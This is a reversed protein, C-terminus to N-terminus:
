VQNKSAIGTLVTFHKVQIDLFVLQLSKSFKKKGYSRESLYASESSCFGSSDSIRYDVSKNNSKYSFVPPTPLDPFHFQSEQPPPPAFGNEYPNAKNPRFNFLVPSTSESRRRTGDIRGVYKEVEEDSTTEELIRNDHLSPLLSCTALDQPLDRAYTNADSRELEKSIIELRETLVSAFAERAEPIDHRISGDSHDVIQQM